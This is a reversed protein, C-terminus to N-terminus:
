EYYFGETMFETIEDIEPEMAPISLDPDVVKIYGPIASIQADKCLPRGRHQLSDDVVTEFTGILRPHSFFQSLSGNSGGTLLDPIQADVANGLIGAAAAAGTTEGRSVNITNVVSTLRQLATIANNVYDRGIQALQVPVGVQASGRYVKGWDTLAVDVYLNGVGTMCDVSAICDLEYADTLLTSDLPIVGWSYFHLKYRSFPSLNLFNGRQQAQPHKPITFTASFNANTGAYRSCTVNVGWWGFRLESVDNGMNPPMFPFWMCSVIYQFPNFLTKLLEHSIDTISDINLWNMQGLLAECLNNFQSQNFVYYSVAGMGSSDDNIIGVVYAGQNLSQGWPEMDSQVANFGVQAKCPYLLDVIDGDWQAASRVVYQTSAGIQTKWSALVDVSLSGWWLGGTFNWETIFYYRKFSPIYAYNFHAPSYGKGFDMGLTPSLIGSQEKVTCLFEDGGAPQATSNKRKSFTYLFVDYAM